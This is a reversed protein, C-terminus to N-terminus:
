QRMMVVTESEVTGNMYNHFLWTVDSSNVSVKVTVKDYQKPAFTGSNVVVDSGYTLTAANWTAVSVTLTAKGNALTAPLQNDTALIDDVDNQINTYTKNATIATSAGKRAADTLIAKVMMARGLEVMGVVMLMLFVAVFAFEVTAAARRSVTTQSCVM